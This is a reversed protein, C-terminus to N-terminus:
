VLVLMLMPGSSVIILLYQLNEFHFWNASWLEQRSMDGTIQTVLELLPRADSRVEMAQTVVLEL